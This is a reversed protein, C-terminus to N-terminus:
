QALTPTPKFNGVKKAAFFYLFVRPLAAALTISVKEV